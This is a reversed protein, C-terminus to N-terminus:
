GINSILYKSIKFHCNQLFLHSFGRFFSNTLVCWLHSNYWALQRFCCDVTLYSMLVIPTVHFLNFKLINYNWMMMIEDCHLKNEGHYLQCIARNVNLVCLCDDVWERLKVIFVRTDELINVLTQFWINQFRLIVIRYFCIHFDAFSHIQKKGVSVDYSICFSSAHNNTTV